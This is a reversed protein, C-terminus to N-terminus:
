LNGGSGLMYATRRSESSGRQTPSDRRLKRGSRDTASRQRPALAVEARQNPFREDSKTVAERFPASHIYHSHICIDM